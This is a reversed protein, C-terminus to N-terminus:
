ASLRRRRQKQYNNTWESNCRGCWSRGTVRPRLGCHACPAPVTTGRITNLIQSVITTPKANRGGVETLVGGSNIVYVNRSVRFVFGDEFRLHDGIELRLLDVEIKPGSIRSYKM